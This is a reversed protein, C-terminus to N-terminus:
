RKNLLSSPALQANSRHKEIIVIIVIIIFIICEYISSSTIMIIIIIMIIFIIRMYGHVEIKEGAMVGTKYLSSSTKKNFNISIIIITIIIFIM